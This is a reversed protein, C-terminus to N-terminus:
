QCKLSLLSRKAAITFRTVSGISAITACLLSSATSSGSAESFAHATLASFRVAVSGCHWRTNSTTVWLHSYRPSIAPTFRRILLMCFPQTSRASCAIRLAM